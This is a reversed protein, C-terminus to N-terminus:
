SFFGWSGRRWPFGMILRDQVTEHFSMHELDGEPVITVSEPILEECFSPGQSREKRLIEHCGIKSWKMLTKPVGGAKQWCSIPHPNVGM